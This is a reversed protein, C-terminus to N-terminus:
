AHNHHNEHSSTIKNSLIKQMIDMLIYNIDTSSLKASFYNFMPITDPLTGLKRWIIGVGKQNLQLKEFVEHDKSALVAIAHCLKENMQDFMQDISDIKAYFEKSIKELSQAAAAKHIKRISKEPQIHDPLFGDLVSNLSSKESQLIISIPSRLVSLDKEAEDLWLMYANVFRSSDIQYINSIDSLKRGQILLKERLICQM